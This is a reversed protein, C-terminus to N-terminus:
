EELISCELSMELNEPSKKEYGELKLYQQWIIDGVERYYLYIPHIDSNYVDQTLLVAIIDSVSQHAHLVAIAKQYSTANDLGVVVSYSQIIKQAKDAPSLNHERSKFTTM